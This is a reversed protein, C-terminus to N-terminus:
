HGCMPCPNRRPPRRPMVNGSSQMFGGASARMIAVPHVGAKKLALNWKMGESILQFAHEAQEATSGAPDTLARYTMRRASEDGDFKYLPHEHGYESMVEDEIIEVDVQTLGAPRKRTAM